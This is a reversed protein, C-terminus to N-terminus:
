DLNGELDGGFFSFPSALPNGDCIKCLILENDESLCQNKHRVKLVV